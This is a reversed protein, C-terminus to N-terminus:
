SHQHDQRGGSQVSRDGGPIAPWKWCIRACPTFVITIKMRGDPDLVALLDLGAAPGEVMATAIAHNLAIMPNDSLGKLVGYIALIQPWDTDEGSPKTTCRPSPRRCSICGSRARHSRETVLAVGEAIQARDWRHPGAQRASDLEGDPGTRADRRADTLLM